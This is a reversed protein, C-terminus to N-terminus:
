GRGRVSSPPVGFRRRFATAFNAAGAYGAIEAAEAVSCRGGELARRARLLRGERVHGLISTGHVERFMRQLTSVSAGAARAARAAGELSMGGPPQAELWACAAEVRRRDRQAIRPGAPARGGELGGLAEHLLATAASELRLRELFGALGSPRLTEEALAAARRSPAWAAQAIRDRGAGGMLALVEEAEAELWELTATVNVKRVRTGRRSRRVMREPRRRLLVLGGPAGGRGEVALTRGGLDFRIEGELVLSCTLGPRQVIETSLDHLEEADTAHLTLGHRLATLSYRGRLAGGEGEAGPTLIRFESGALSACRALDGGRVLEEPGPAGM